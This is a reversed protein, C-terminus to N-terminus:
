HDLSQHDDIYKAQVYTLKVGVILVGIAAQHFTSADVGLRGLEQARMGLFVFCPILLVRLATVSWLVVRM